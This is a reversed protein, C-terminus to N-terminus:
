AGRRKFKTLEHNNNILPYGIKQQILKVKKWDIAKKNDFYAQPNFYLLDAVARELTATKIGGTKEIGTEQYLFKDALKRSHYHYDGVSFHKSVSSVLTIYPINQQIIGAQTLVTETSVYSYSHLAKIGVAIPDLQDISKLSYLGKYIRTILGQQAYRKLTTHLTNSSKIRWLNALDKSHFILEGTKALNAFRRASVSKDIKRNNYGTSM